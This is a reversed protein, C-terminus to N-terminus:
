LSNYSFKHRYKTVYKRVTEPNNSLIGDTHRSVAYLLEEQEFLYHTNSIDLREEKCKNLKSRLYVTVGSKGM